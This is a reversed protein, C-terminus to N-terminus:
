SQRKGLVHIKTSLTGEETDERDSTSSNLPESITDLLWKRYMTVDTYIGPEGEV